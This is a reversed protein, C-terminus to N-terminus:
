PRGSIIEFTASYTKPNEFCLAYSTDRPVYIVEFEELSNTETQRETPKLM